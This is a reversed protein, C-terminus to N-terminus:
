KRSPPRPLPPVQAFAVADEAMFVEEIDELVMDGKGDCAMKFVEAVAADCALRVACANTLWHTCTSRYLQLSLRPFKRLKRTVKSAPPVVTPMACFMIVCCMALWSM